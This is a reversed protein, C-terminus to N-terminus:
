FIFPIVEQSNRARLSNQRVKTFFGGTNMDVIKFSRDECGSVVYDQGDIRFSSIGVFM